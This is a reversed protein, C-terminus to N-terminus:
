YGLNVYEVPNVAVRNRRLEFRLSPESAAGTMGSLAIVQGKQVYEGKIVLLTNNFSYISHFGNKHDIIIMNGSGVFLGAFAVEGDAFAKISSNENV